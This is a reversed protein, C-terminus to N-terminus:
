VATACPRPASRRRPSAAAGTYDGQRVREMAEEAEERAEPPLARDLVVRRVFQDRPTDYVVKDFEERREEPLAARIDGLM